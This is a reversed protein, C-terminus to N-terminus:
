YEYYIDSKNNTIVEQSLVKKWHKAPKFKWTKPVGLRCYKPFKFWHFKVLYGNSHSNNVITEFREKKKTKPNWRFMFVKRFLSKAKAKRIQMIGCFYPLYYAKGSDVMNYMLLNNFTKCVLIFNQLSDLKQHEYTKYADVITFSKKVNM